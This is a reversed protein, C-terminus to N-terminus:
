QDGANKVAVDAPIVELKDQCDAIVQLQRDLDDFLADTQHEGVAVPQQLIIKIAAKARAIEWEYRKTMSNLM